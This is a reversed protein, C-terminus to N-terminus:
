FPQKRLTVKMKCYKLVGKYAKRKKIYLISSKYKINLIKEKMQQHYLVIYVICINSVLQNNWMSVLETAAFM